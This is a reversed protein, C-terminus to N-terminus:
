PVTAYPARDRRGKSPAGVENNRRRSGATLEDLVTRARPTARCKSPLNGVLVATLEGRVESEKIAQDDLNLASSRKEPETEARKRRHPPSLFATVGLSARRM